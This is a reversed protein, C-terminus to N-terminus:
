FNDIFNKRKFTKYESSWKEYSEDTYFTIDVSELILISLTNYEHIDKTNTQKILYSVSCDGFYGSKTNYNLITLIDKKVQHYDNFSFHIYLDHTILLNSTYSIKFENVISNNAVVKVPLIVTEM